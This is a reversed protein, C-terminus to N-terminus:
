SSSARTTTLYNGEGPLSEYLSALATTHQEVSPVSVGQLPGHNGLMAAAAPDALVRRLADALSSVDRHRFLVGNIGDAVLESMGGVDATVVPVRAQLAEFIVLPANELWISPVVIADVADFVDRVIDENRYEPAFDVLRRLHRRLERSAGVRRSELDNILRRLSATAAGNERGYIVCRFLPLAAGGRAPATAALREEAVYAAEVLLQIGKSPEHRGIYAFTFPEGAPPGRRTRGSLRALDFAYPLHHLKARPVGATVFRELLHRSPAIFADVDSVALARFAAMREGVFREWYREDADGAGGFRCAFCRKACKADVQESCLEYPQPRTADGRPSTPGVVLFQGRPCLLFFDHLVFVVSAGFEHKAIAPLRVSLHNVHGFQVIRPRRARMVGRFAEDIEECAYRNYAAERPNNVLYVPISADISDSTRRVAYDPSFVDMERSFVAVERLHGAGHRRLGLATTQTDIESGANFLPPYGHNVLLVGSSGRGAGGKGGGATETSRTSRDGGGYSACVAPQPAQPPAQPATAHCPQPRLVMVAHGAHEGAGAGVDEWGASAFLAAWEDARRERAGNLVNMHLSLLAHTRGRAVVRDIVVLRTDATADRRTSVLLARARVDDWDHLVRSMVFVNAPPIPNVFFDAAVYEISCDRALGPMNAAAAAAAASGASAANLATVEPRDLCILRLPRAATALTSLRRLLTGSGGGVDVITVPAGCAGSSRAALLPAFHKEIGAWSEEAYSALVNRSLALAAPQAALAAFADRLPAVPGAAPSQARPPKIQPLWAALYRDQLWYEARALGRRGPLLAEGAATASYLRAGDAGPGEDRLLGLEAWAACIIGDRSAGDVRLTHSSAGGGSRGAASGRVLAAPLESRLGLRVAFPAWWATLLKQLHASSEAVGLPLELAARGDEAIVCRTGDLRLALAQGNYHPELAAFREGFSADAFDSRRVFHWGREDRARAFGKHFVDLDLCKPRAEGAPAPARGDEDVHHCLGDSASRVVALGERFDGAYAHPGGTRSEGAADIHEYGGGVLRVTCRAGGFNGAWAFCRGYARRGDPLIHHWLGDAGVVAALGEYFGFTRVFRAGYAASGDARIHLATGAGAPGAGAGAEGREGAPALGPAHFPLVWAFRQDYLPEGSDACM